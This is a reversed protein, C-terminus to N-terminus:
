GWANRTREEAEAGALISRTPKPGPGVWKIVPPWLVNVAEKLIPGLHEACTTLTTDAVREVEFVAHKGCLTSGSPWDTFAECIWEDTM